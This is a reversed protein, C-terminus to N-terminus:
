KIIIFVNGSIWFTHNLKLMEFIHKLNEYGARQVYVLNAHLVMFIYKSM